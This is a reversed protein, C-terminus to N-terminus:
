RSAPRSLRSQGPKFLLAYREGGFEKAEMKAFIDKATKEIDAAPMKPDFV